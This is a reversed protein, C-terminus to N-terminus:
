MLTQIYQELAKEGFIYNRLTWSLSFLFLHSIHNFKVIFVILNKYNFKFTKRTNRNSVEFLYMSSPNIISQEFTMVATKAAKGRGSRAFVPLNIAM